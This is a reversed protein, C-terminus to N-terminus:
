TRLVNQQYHPNNCYSNYWYTDSAPTTQLSRPTQERSPFYVKALIESRHSHNFAAAYYFFFLNHRLRFGTVNCLHVHQDTLNQPPPRPFTLLKFLILFNRFRNISISPDVCYKLSAGNKPTKWDPHNSPITAAELFGDCDDGGESINSVNNSEGREERLDASNWPNVGWKRRIASKAIYAISDSVTRLCDSEELQKNRDGAREWCQTIM